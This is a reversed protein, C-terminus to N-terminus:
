ASARPGSTPWAVRSGCRSVPRTDKSSIGTTRSAWAQAMPRSMVLWFVAILQGFGRFALVYQGVVGALAQGQLAMGQGQEPFLSVQLETETGFLELIDLRASRNLNNAKDCAAM